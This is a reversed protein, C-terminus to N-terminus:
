DAYLGYVRCLLHIATQQHTELYCSCFHVPCFIINFLLTFLLLLITIHTHTHTGGASIGNLINCDEMPAMGEFEVDVAANSITRIFCRKDFKQDTNFTYASQFPFLYVKEAKALWPALLETIQASQDLDNDECVCIYDGANSELEYVSMKYGTVQCVPNLKKLVTAQIFDFIQLGEIIFLRKFPKIDTETREDDM